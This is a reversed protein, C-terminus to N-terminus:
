DSAAPASPFVMSLQSLIDRVSPFGMRHHPTPGFRVLAARHERTGYGVHREFGYDPFDGALACM